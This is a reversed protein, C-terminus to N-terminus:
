RICWPSLMLVLILTETLTHYISIFGSRDSDSATFQDSMDSLSPNPTIWYKWLCVSLVREPRGRRMFTKLVVERHVPRGWEGGSGPLGSQSAISVIKQIERLEGICLFEWVLWQARLNNSYSSYNYLYM